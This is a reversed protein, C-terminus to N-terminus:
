RIVVNRSFFWISDVEFSFDPYEGAKMLYKNKKALVDYSQKEDKLTDNIPTLVYHFSYNEKDDPEIVKLVKYEREEDLVVESGETIDLDFRKEWAKYYDFPKMTYSKM